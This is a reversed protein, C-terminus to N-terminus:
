TRLRCDKRGSLFFRFFPVGRTLRCRCPTNTRNSGSMQVDAIPFVKRCGSSVPRYGSSVPHYGSSLRVIVPRYRVIGSSLRVIGSLVPRYRVIGSSLRVIGSLVPRYGSSLRVIVPRYGSSLRVIVPRYGSSVPRYGSSVFRGDAETIITFCVTPKQQQTGAFHKWSLLLGESCVAPKKPSASLNTLVSVSTDPATSNCEM